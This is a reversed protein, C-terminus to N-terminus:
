SKIAAQWLEVNGIQIMGKTEFQITIQITATEVEKKFHARVEYYKLDDNPPVERCWSRTFTGSQRQQCVSLSVTIPTETKIAKASFRCALVCEEVNTQPIEFLVFKRLPDTTSLFNKIGDDYAEIQWKGGFISVGGQSVTSDDLTFQRVLAFPETPEPIALRKGVENVAERIKSGIFDNLGKFIDDFM